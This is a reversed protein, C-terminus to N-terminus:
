AAGAMDRGGVLRLNRANADMDDAAASMAAADITAACDPPIYGAIWADVAARVWRSGSRVEVTMGGGKLMSPLPRPFGHDRILGAVYALMRADSYGVAGLERQIYHLNCTTAPEDALQSRSAM